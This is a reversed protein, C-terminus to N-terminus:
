ILIGFSDFLLQDKIISNKKIVAAPDFLTKDGETKETGIYQEPRNLGDDYQPKLLFHSLHPNIPWFM